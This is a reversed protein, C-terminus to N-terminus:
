QQDLGPQLGLFIAVECEIFAFAAEVAVARSEAPLRGDVLQQIKGIVNAFHDDFSPRRGFDLASGAFFAHREEALRREGLYERTCRRQFFDILDCENLLPSTSFIVSTNLGCTGSHAQSSVDFCMMTAPTFLCLVAM